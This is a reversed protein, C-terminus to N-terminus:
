LEFKSAHNIAPQTKTDPQASLLRVRMYRRLTVRTFPVPSGKRVRCRGRGSDRSTRCECANDSVGNGFHGNHSGKPISINDIFKEIKRDIFSFM